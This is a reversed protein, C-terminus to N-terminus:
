IELQDVVALDYDTMRSPLRVRQRFKLRGRGYDETVEEDISSLLVVGKKTLSRKKGSRRIYNPRKKGFIVDETIEIATVDNMGLMDFKLNLFLKELIIAIGDNGANQSEAQISIIEMAEPTFKLQVDQMGWLSQYHAMPNLNADNFFAQAM